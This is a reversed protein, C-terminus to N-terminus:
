GDSAAGEEGELLYRCAVEETTEEELLGRHEHGLPIGRKHFAWHLDHHYGLREALTGRGVDTKHHRHLHQNLARRAEAYSPKEPAPM